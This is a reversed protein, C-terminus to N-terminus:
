AFKMRVTPNKLQQRLFDDLMQHKVQYLTRCTQRAIEALRIWVLVACAIHNRQIRAKRCQCREIGTLQKAERHFQHTPRLFKVELRECFPAHAERSV